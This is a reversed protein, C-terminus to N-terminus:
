VMDGVAFLILKLSDRSQSSLHDFSDAITHFVHFVITGSLSSLAESVEVLAEHGTLAKSDDHAIRSLPSRHLTTSLLPCLEQTDYRVNLIDM